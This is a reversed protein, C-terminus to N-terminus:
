RRNFLKELAGSLSASHVSPPKEARHADPMAPTFNNGKALPPRPLPFIPAHDGASPFRGTVCRCPTVSTSALLLWLRAGDFHWTSTPSLWSPGDIGRPQFAGFTCSGECLAHSPLATQELGGASPRAALPFFRECVDFAPMSGRPSTARGRSPYYRDRYGSRDSFTTIKTM